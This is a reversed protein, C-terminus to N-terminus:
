YLGVGLKPAHRVRRPKAPTDGTTDSVNEINAEAMQPGDNTVTIFDTGQGTDTGVGQDNITISTGDGMMTEIRDRIEAPVDIRDFAVRAAEAGTADNDTTIGLRRKTEDSLVNPLTMAHWEATEGNRDIHDATLLHTGLAMDPDKIGVPAEFIAQFDRRVMIQGAPPRPKDAAQYLAAVFEESMLAGKESIGKWRKFGSIASRTLPGLYGDQGGTEFGMDELLKQADMLNERDGRRTILIRLAAPKIDASATAGGTPSDTSPSVPAPLADSGHAAPNDPSVNMAVEVPKAGAAPNAANRKISSTRLETDTMMPGIPLAKRPTFLLADDIKEPVVSTDAIIVHAGNETLQYLSRAFAGPMRVCGHSAPHNPVVGEHLAIGSWTIRQMWPMPANSYINSEHYKEKQIISFIGSPTGHGPKGTSVRTTAVVKDGDYVVMQQQNKSVIISLTQASEAFAGHSLM